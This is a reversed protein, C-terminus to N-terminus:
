TSPLGLSIKHILKLRCPDAIDNDSMISKVSDFDDVDFPSVWFLNREARLSDTALPDRSGYDWQSIWKEGGFYSSGILSCGSQIKFQINETTWENMWNHPNDAPAAVKISTRSRSQLMPPWKIRWSRRASQWPRPGYILRSKVDVQASVTDHACTCTPSILKTLM